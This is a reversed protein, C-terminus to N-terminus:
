LFKQYLDTVHKGKFVVLFITDGNEYYFSIYHLKMHKADSIAVFSTTESNMTKLRELLTKLHGLLAPAELEKIRSQVSFSVNAKKLSM